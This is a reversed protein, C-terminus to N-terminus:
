SFWSFRKKEERDNKGLNYFFISSGVVILFGLMKEKRYQSKTMYVPENPDDIATHLTTHLADSVHTPHLTHSKEHVADVIDDLNFDIHRTRYQSDEKKPVEVKEKTDSESIFSSLSCRDDELFAKSFNKLKKNPVVKVTNTNKNKVTITTPINKM